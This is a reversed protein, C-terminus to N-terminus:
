HLSYPVFWILVLVYSSKSQIIVFFIIEIKSGAGNNCFFLFQNLQALVLEGGHCVIEM